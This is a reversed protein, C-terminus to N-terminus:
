RPLVDAGEKNRGTNYYEMLMAEVNRWSIVKNIREMLKVSRNHELSKSVALNAFSIEEGIKKYGMDEGEEIPLIQPFIYCVKPINDLYKM